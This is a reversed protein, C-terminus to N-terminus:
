LAAASWCARVKDVREVCIRVLNQRERQCRRFREPRLPQAFYEVRMAHDIDALPFHALRPAAFSQAHRQQMLRQLTKRGIDIAPGVPQTDRRLRILRLHLMEFRQRRDQALFQFRRCRELQSSREANGMAMCKKTSIALCAISPDAPSFARSISRMMSLLAKAHREDDDVHLRLEHWM